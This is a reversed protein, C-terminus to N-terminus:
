LPKAPRNKRPRPTLRNKIIEDVERYLWIFNGLYNDAKKARAELHKYARKFKNRPLRMWLQLFTHGYMYDVAYARKLMKIEKDSLRNIVRIYKRAKIGLSENYDDENGLRLGNLDEILLSMRSEYDDPLIISDSSFFPILSYLEDSFTTRGELVAKMLESEIARENIYDWNHRFSDDDYLILRTDLTTNRDDGRYLGKKIVKILDRYIPNFTEKEM